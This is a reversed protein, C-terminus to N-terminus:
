RYNKFSPKLSNDVLLKDHYKLCLPHFIEGLINAWPIPYDENSGYPDTAPHEKLLETYQELRKKVEQYWERTFATQPRFIYAGNGILLRWYNKLDQKLCVNTIGVNAVGDFGVERYGIAYADSRELTEFAKKWSKRYTKIDAYGGGYFNMFYCRLFDAKHVASLYRFAEPLPEEDKIYEHLNQPTILKVEVDCCAELSKIGRLRNPTIENDGTWFIYIVHRVDGVNTKFSIPLLDEVLFTGKYRDKNFKYSYLFSYLVTILQNYTKALKIYYQGLIKTFIKKYKEM